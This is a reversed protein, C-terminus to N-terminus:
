DQFTAQLAVLLNPALDAGRLPEAGPEGDASRVRLLCAGGPMGRLVGAVLRAEQRDPHGAAAAADLPEDQDAVASPPLVVIEQVLVCGSVEPPWSVRSLAVALDGDPADLPDQAVATFATDGLGAALEPKAAILDASAVLAFLQPAADWGASAVFEEVEAVATAM